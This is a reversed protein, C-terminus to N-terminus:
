RKAINTPHVARSPLATDARRLRMNEWPFGREMNRVAPHSFDVIPCGNPRRPACSSTATERQGGNVDQRSSSGTTASGSISATWSTAATLYRYM